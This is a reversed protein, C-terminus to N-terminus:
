GNIKDHVLPDFSFADSVNSVDNNEGKDLSIHSDRKTEHMLM